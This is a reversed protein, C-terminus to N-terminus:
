QTPVEQTSQDSPQGGLGLVGAANNDYEVVGETAKMMLDISKLIGDQHAKAAGLKTQLMAIDHGARIGGAEELAKAAEAEMKAIRAKDVEAEQQLKLVGLKFKTELSLKREQAKIQEVQVKVDPGNQIANPGQPDPLVEDINPIKLAELYRKMVNYVNFGPVMLATQKLTEAQMIRQVDSVVHPDASPRIDTSSDQYDTALVGGGAFKTEEPLYLQNLRYVKRIEENLARYTRKFIGAFVKMGQEAMTRSTEAPTNQGVNEGVM